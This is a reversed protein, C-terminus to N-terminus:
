RPQMKNRSVYRVTASLVLIVAILVLMAAWAQRKWEEEASTVYKFIQLTLSPFQKTPDIMPVKAIGLNMTFTPIDLDSGLATFMLPATEGAIRAVALMIGTIIGTSAAPIIVKFLTHYKAGGVAMSAERYTSPVLRLMEETTKAIIPVMMFGLAVGGALGSPTHMPVVILEYALVGVIISPTGALVDVLLRVVKSLKSNHSYESLYIGCLMGLPIGFTSGLGILILTGMICNRMGIPEGVPGPLKTFFDWSLSTIGMYVVYGIIMGLLALTLAACAACAVVMIKNFIRVSANSSAIPVKRVPETPTAEAAPADAASPAAAAAPAHHMFGFMGGPRTVGSILWRAIFNIFFTLVLLVLAVYILAQSYAPKDAEMFENALLSAMTMAPQFLSSSISNNNGIVMTVAMTEGIARAFGLMVAGFIGVKGFNLVVMTAQWWTAGLAYAGEDLERPIAQLVDRTVATIIPIVMIALVVGAALMSSGIAPGSFLQGVVPVHGLTAKLFPMATRQLFPVLVAVGWFGYAISPIAALLEILFSCPSVMWRPALRVLFVASGISVPVAIVMAILSSVVTGYIVPLAGFNMEVPDWDSDIIFHYTYTKIAPWAGYILVATLLAVLGIVAIGGARTTAVTLWDLFNRVKPNGAATPAVTSPSPGSVPDAPAPVTTM